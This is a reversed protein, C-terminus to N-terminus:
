EAAGGTQLSAAAETKNIQIKQKRRQRFVITLIMYAAFAAAACLSILV